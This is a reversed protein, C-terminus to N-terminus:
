CRADSMIIICGFCQICRTKPNIKGRIHITSHSKSVPFNRKSVPFYSFIFFSVTMAFSFLDFGRSVCISGYISFHAYFFDIFWNLMLKTPLQLQLQIRDISNAYSDNMLTYCKHSDCLLLLSFFFFDHM